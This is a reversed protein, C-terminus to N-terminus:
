QPAGFEKANKKLSAAREILGQRDAEPSPDLDYSYVRDDTVTFPWVTEVFFDVPITEYWPAAIEQVVQRRVCGEKDFIFQHTGYFMFNQKVPTVGAEDGDIVLLAGSPNTRIEMTREICGPAVLLVVLAAVFRSIGM